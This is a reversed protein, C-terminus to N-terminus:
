ARDYRTARSLYQSLYDVQRHREAVGLQLDTKGAGAEGGYGVVDAESELALRQPHPKDSAVDCYPKWRYKRPAIYERVAYAAEHMM